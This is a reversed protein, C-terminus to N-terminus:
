GMECLHFVVGLSKKRGTGGSTHDEGRGRVQESSTQIRETASFKIRRLGANEESQHKFIVMKEVCLLRPTHCVEGRARNRRTQDLAAELARKEAKAQVPLQATSVAWREHHVRSRRSHIVPM